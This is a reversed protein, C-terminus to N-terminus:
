FYDSYIMRMDWHDPDLLKQGGLAWQDPDTNSLSYVFIGPAPHSHTDPEVALEFRSQRLSQIQAESFRTSSIQLSQINSEVVANLLKTWVDASSVAWDVVTVAGGSAFQHLTFFGEPESGQEYFVFRYHCRPDKLRWEYFRGDRVHQIRSSDSYQSVLGSMQSIRPTSTGVCPGRARTAWEDFRKFPVHDIRNRLMRRGRRFARTLLNPRHHYTQYVAARKWGARMRLRRTTVTASSTILIDYGRSALDEEAAAVLDGDLWRGRHDPDIAFEAGSPIIWSGAGCQWQSGYLARMGVVAGARIALHFIPEEIYPNQEYKWDLYAANFAPTGGFVRSRLDAVQPKYTPSYRIIEYEREARTPSPTEDPQESKSLVSVVSAIDSFNEPILDDPDFSHGISSELEEVFNVLDFSDLQNNLEGSDDLIGLQAAIKRVLADYDVTKSRM